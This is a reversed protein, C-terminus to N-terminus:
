CKRDGADGARTEKKQLGHLLKIPLRTSKFSCKSNILQRLLARAESRNKVERSLRDEGTKERKAANTLHALSENGKSAPPRPGLRPQPVTCTAPSPNTGGQWPHRLCPHREHETRLQWAFGWHPNEERHGYHEPLCPTCLRCDRSVTTEGPGRSTKRNWYSGSASTKDPRHDKVALQHPGRESKHRPGATSPAPQATTECLRNEKLRQLM